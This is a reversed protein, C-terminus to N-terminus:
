PKKVAIELFRDAGPFVAAGFDLPVTFLGSTVPVASVLVPAGQATGTGVTVTDYVTFQFDYIGTANVGNELLRGQYTFTTTQASGVAAVALLVAAVIWTRVTRTLPRIAGM